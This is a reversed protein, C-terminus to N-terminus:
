GGGKLFTRNFHEIFGNVEETSCDFFRLTVCTVPLKISPGLERNKESGLIIEVNKHNLQFHIGDKVRHYPIGDLLLPLKAYFEQHTIGMAKQVDTFQQKETAM